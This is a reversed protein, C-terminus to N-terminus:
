GNRIATEHEDLLLTPCCHMLELNLFNKADVGRVAASNQYAKTM